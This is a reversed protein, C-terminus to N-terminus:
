WIIAGSKQSWKVTVVKKLAWDGFISTLAEYSSPSPLVNWDMVPVEEAIKWYYASFKSRKRFTTEHIWLVSLLSNTNTLTVVVRGDNCLTYQTLLPSTLGWPAHSVQIWRRNVYIRYLRNAVQWIGHCGVRCQDFWNNVVGLWVWLKTWAKAIVSYSLKIKEEPLVTFQRCITINIAYVIFSICHIRPIQYLLFLCISCLGYM